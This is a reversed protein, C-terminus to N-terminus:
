GDAMGEEIIRRDSVRRPEDRRGRRDNTRKPEHAAGHRKFEAREGSNFYDRKQFTVIEGHASITPVMIEGKFRIVATHAGGTGERQVVKADRILALIRAKDEPMLRM